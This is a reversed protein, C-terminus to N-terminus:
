QSKVRGLRNIIIQWQLEPYDMHRYIFTGNQIKTLVDARWQLFNKNQFGNWNFIEKSSFSEIERLIKETEEHTGNQNEDVFLIAGDHWNNKIYTFTLTQKSLFASNRATELLQILQQRKKESSHKAIFYRAHISASVLIISVISLVVLLELLTFGIIKKM